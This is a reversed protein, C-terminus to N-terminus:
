EKAVGSLFILVIRSNYVVEVLFHSFDHGFVVVCYLASACNTEFLEDVVSFFVLAECVSDVQHSDVPAVVSKMQNTHMPVPEHRSLTGFISVATDDIVFNGVHLSARNASALHIFLFHLVDFFLFLRVRFDIVPTVSQSRAVLPDVEVLITKEM